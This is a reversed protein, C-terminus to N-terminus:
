IGEHYVKEVSGYEILDMVYRNFVSTYEELIGM